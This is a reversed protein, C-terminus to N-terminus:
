SDARTVWPEGTEGFSHDDKSLTWLQRKRLTWTDVADGFNAEDVSTDQVWLYALLFRRRLKGLRGPAGKKTLEVYVSASRGRRVGAIPHRLDFTIPVPYGPEVDRKVVHADVVRSGQRVYARSIYITSPYQSALYVRAHDGVKEADSAAVELAVKPPRVRAWAAALGKAGAGAGRIVTGTELSMVRRYSLGAEGALCTGGLALIPRTEPARLENWSNEIPARTDPEGVSM